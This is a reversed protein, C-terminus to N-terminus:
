QENYYDEFQTAMEVRVNAKGGKQVKAKRGKRVSIEKQAAKAELDRRQQSQIKWTPAKARGSRRTQPLPSDVEIDVEVGLDDDALSSLEQSSDSQSVCLVNDISEGMDERDKSKEDVREDSTSSITSDSSACSLDEERMKSREITEARMQALVKQAKDAERQAKYLKRQRDKLAAEAAEAGTMARKRKCSHPFAQIAPECIRDPLRAPLNERGERMKMAQSIRKATDGAIIHALEEGEQGGLHERALEASLAVSALLEEGGGRFQDGAQRDEIIKERQQLEQSRYSMKWPQSLSSPGDLFWRPHFLSIPIPEDKFCAQYLWHCCPLGYRLPLPCASPCKGTKKFSEMEAEDDGGKEAEIRDWMGKTTEWEIAVLKLCYHTLLPSVIRFAGKTDIWTPRKRRNQNIIDDHTKVVTPLFEGIRLVAQPLSLQRNLCEKVVNHYSESRQTSHVGLNPLKSIYAHIFQSEKPRYFKNLYTAENVDVAALLKGRREELVKETSSKIWSWVLDIILDKREKSYGAITLKRRIAQVAHWECIQLFCNSIEQSTVQQRAEAEVETEIKEDVETGELEEPIVLGAAIQGKATAMAAALGAAFDGVVVCPLPCDYFILKTLQEHVWRFMKASEASIFVFALPFTQGTNTIGVLISLPMKLENTNFTADTEWIFESVFRRALRIQESSCILIDRAIRATRKGEGDILYEERM